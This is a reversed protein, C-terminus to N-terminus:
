NSIVVEAPGQLKAGGLLNKMFSTKRVMVARRKVTM